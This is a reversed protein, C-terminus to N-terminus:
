EVFACHHLGFFFGFLFLSFISAKLTSITIIRICQENNKKSISKLTFSIM